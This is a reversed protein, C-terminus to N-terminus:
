LKANLALWAKHLRFLWRLPTHKRNDKDLKLVLRRKKDGKGETSNEVALFDGKSPFELPAMKVSEQRCKELDDLAQKAYYAIDFQSHVQFALLFMGDISEQNIGHLADFLTTKKSLVTKMGSKCQRITDLQIEETTKETLKEVPPPSQEGENIEGKDKAADAARIELILPEADEKSIEGSKVALKVSKITNM